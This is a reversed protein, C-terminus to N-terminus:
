EEDGIFSDRVRKWFSNHRYKAFYVRQSAVCFKLEKLQRDDDDMMMIERDNTLVTHRDDDIVLKVDAHTGLIVPSGITRFIMNNLSAMEAMQFGIIRPDMIAGGVSKNYATSGSPTSICLGDGRFREFLVDNIYVDAVLTRSVNRITAENIAVHEDVSGDAYTATMKLLPYAVSQGSDNLLSAVLAEVEHPRWDAYFGLHGTHIGVFRIQDLQDRYKQVASLLTGDGGISIVVEPDLENYELTTGTAAALIEDRVQLSLESEYTYIAFKM